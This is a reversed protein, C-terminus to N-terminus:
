VQEKPIFIEGCRVCVWKKHWHATAARYQPGASIAKVFLWGFWLTLLLLLAFVGEVMTEVFGMNNGMFHILAYVVIAWFLCFGGAFFWMVVSPEPPPACHSAFNTQNRVYYSGHNDSGTFSASTTGQAYAVSCRMVDQSECKPCQM